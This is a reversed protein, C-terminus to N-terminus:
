ARPLLHPAHERIHATTVRRGSQHVKWLGRPPRADHTAIWDGCWRCSARYRQDVHEEAGYAWCTRCRRPPAAGEGPKRPKADTDGPKREIVPMRRQIVGWLLREGEDILALARDIAALDDCARDGRTTVAREPQSSTEGGHVRLGDYAAARLGDITIDRDTLYRLHAVTHGVTCLWGLTTAGRQAILQRDSNTRPPRTM